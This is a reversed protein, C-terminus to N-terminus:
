NIKVQGCLRLSNYRPRKKSSNFIERLKKNGLMNPNFYCKNEQSYAELFCSSLQKIGLEDPCPSQLTTKLPFTEAALLLFPENRRRTFTNSDQRRWETWRPTEDTTAARAPSPRPESEPENNVGPKRKQATCWKFDDATDDGANSTQKRWIASCHVAPRTVSFRIEERFINLHSSSLRAHVLSHSIFLSFPSSLYAFLLHISLLYSSSVPRRRCRSSICIDASM